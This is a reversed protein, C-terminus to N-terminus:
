DLFEHTVGAMRVLSSRDTGYCPRTESSHTVVLSCCIIPNIVGDLRARTSMMDDNWSAHDVM